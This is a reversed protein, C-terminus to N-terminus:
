YAGTGELQALRQTLRVQRERLVDMHIETSALEMRLAEAMAAREANVVDYVHQQEAPIPEQSPALPGKQQIPPLRYAQQNPEAAAPANVRDRFAGIIRDGTIKPTIDDSRGRRLPM